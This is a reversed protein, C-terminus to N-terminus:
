INLFYLNLGASFYEVSSIQNIQNPLGNPNASHAFIKHYNLQAELAPNFQYSISAVVEPKISTYSSGDNIRTSFAYAQGNYTQQVIAPGIKGILFIPKKIIPLLPLKAQLLIDVVQGSYSQTGYAELRPFVYQYTSKPYTAYSLEFGLEAPHTKHLFGGGLRYAFGYGNSVDHYPEDNEAFTQTLIKGAGMEFLVYPALAYVSHIFVSNLLIVLRVLKLIM